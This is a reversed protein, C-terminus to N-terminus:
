LQNVKEQLINILAQVEEKTLIGKNYMAEIQKLCQVESTELYVQTYLELESFDEIEDLWFLFTCEDFYIEEIIDWGTVVTFYLRNKNKYVFSLSKYQEGNIEYKLYLENNFPPQVELADIWKM